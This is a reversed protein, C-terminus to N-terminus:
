DSTRESGDDDDDKFRRIFAEFAADFKDAPLQALTNLHYCMAEAERQEKSKPKNREFPHFDVAEYGKPNKKWDNNANALLALLQSARDWSDSMRARAM